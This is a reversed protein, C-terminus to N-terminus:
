KSKLAATLDGLIGRFGTFFPRLTSSNEGDSPLDGSLHFFTNVLELRRVYKTWPRSSEQSNFFDLLYVLLIFFIFRSNFVDM